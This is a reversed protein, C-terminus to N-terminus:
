PQESPNQALQARRKRASEGALAIRHANHILRDLAADAVTPEAFLAHWQDIPVQSAVLTSRTDYRDDLIELLDRCHEPSLPALGWDDIVLLDIKALSVLRRGYSGDAKALALEAFLRPARAYLVRFGERCVKNALACALFSKGVGTPGTILCNEHRKLWAMEALSAILSHDLGRAVRFDIDEFAAEQRLKAKGLRIRLQHSQRHTMERDVLLGLREEFCLPDYLTNQCQEQLAQAM